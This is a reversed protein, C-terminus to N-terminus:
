SEHNLYSFFGSLGNQISSLPKLLYSIVFYLLIISAISTFIVITAQIWAIKVVPAEIADISEAICVSYASAKSCIVFRDEGDDRTYYFPEYDKHNKFLEAVTKIAPNIEGEKSAILTPDNSAFVQTNTDFAFVRGPSQKFREQLSSVLVDIALVGVFKGDKHIAISYTFTPQKSTVDIYSDSIYIGEKKKAEIFWERTRADYDDKAGFIVSNVGAKDAEMDNVVIEGSPHAIYVGLYNSSDRYAKLFAGLNQQMGELTNIQEYPLQAIYDRLKLLSRTNETEFDVIANQAIKVYNTEADKTTEFLSDKVFIFTVVGLVLLCVIAIFNAILSAKIKISNM